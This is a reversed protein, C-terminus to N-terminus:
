EKYPNNEETVAIALDMPILGRFDFHHAVLWDVYIFAETENFKFTYEHGLITELEQMEEETMSSMPRLYPKFDDITYPVIDTLQYEEIFDVTDENGIAVVHIEETSTNVDDLIVDFPSDIFILDGYIDYEGNTTEAHVRGRVGYPLRACLDKLLLDKQEQTM